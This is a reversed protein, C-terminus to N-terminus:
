LLTKYSNFVPCLVWHSHTHTHHGIDLHNTDNGEDSDGQKGHEESPLFGELNFFDDQNVLGCMGFLKTLQQRLSDEKARRSNFYFSHVSVNIRKLQGSKPSGLVFTTIFSAM